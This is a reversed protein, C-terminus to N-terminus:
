LNISVGAIVTRIASYLAGNNTGSLNTRPDLGKRKSTLWLNDGSVFVRLGKVVKTKQLLENNITYGLNVNRLSLFSADTLFRDSFSPTLNQNLYELRPVDTNTNEPTWARLIDPSWGNATSNGISMLNAYQNDLIKGGIQYSFAVSLDFNKYSANTSFGGTFKPLATGVLQRNATADITGTISTDEFEGNSNKVQYITAGNTQDVGVYKVLHFDYISGGIKMVQSGNTIGTEKFQDPLSTIKNVFHTANASVSWTFDANNIIRSNLAIEVGRNTMDGINWPESTFGTASSVPLNFLLDKTKREFYEVEGSIIGKALVFELGVNFNYNKEWTVDRRGKYLPSLGSNDGDSTVNFLTYFPSYSRVSSNPLFLNDNGQLGYSSKLKLQDIFSVDSLFSEKHLLWSGGVSWFNGWRNEPSFVSSGDRRYSSSFYYKDKFDATLQAFYGEVSYSRNYSTLSTVKAANVWEMSNPDLFNSKEGNVINTKYDFIEHGVMAQLGFDNSFRTDWKLIQNWTTEKTNVRSKYGIGNYALGSGGTPTTFDDNRSFDGTLGVTTSFVFNYPLKVDLGSNLVVYDNQYTDRDLMQTAVPNTASGYMRGENIGNVREGFDYLPRGLQDKITEGNVDTKYIPYIPAISRTWQFPNTYSSGATLRNSKSNTYAASARFDLWEYLESDYALRSSFRNFYSNKAYGEDDFYGVSGYFKSKESGQTLSLNYEKRPANSFLAGDWDNWGEAKYKIAANPNLKGNELVIQGNPVNYANYGLYGYLKDTAFKRAEADTFPANNTHKENLRAYNYISQWYTEYYTGPDKIYDYDQIARSNTGYKVEATINPTNSKARKTTIMIVGNAGRAGYLAASAADKLVSVTQIDAPNISNIAGSYPVGDLVILPESSGNISGIGRIRITSAQGPQGSTNTITLGAVAGELAKAVDPSQFKAIKTADVTAVSGTYTSKKATGYATVVVEELETDENELVITLVSSNGVLIRQATYGISSAEITAGPNVTLTFSGSADTQTVKTTGVVAISVGSIPTGDASTVKGSVQREQAYSVSAICAVAFMTSLLKQKM